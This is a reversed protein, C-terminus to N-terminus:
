HADGGAASLGVVGAVILVLSAFKMANMTEGFSTV